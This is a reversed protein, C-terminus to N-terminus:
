PPKGLATTYVKLKVKYRILNRKTYKMSPMQVFIYTGACIVGRKIVSEKIVFDYAHSETLIDCEVGGYSMKPSIDLNFSYIIVVM